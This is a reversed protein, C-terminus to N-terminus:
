GHWHWLGKRLTQLVWVPKITKSAPPNQCYHEKSVARSHHCLYKREQM